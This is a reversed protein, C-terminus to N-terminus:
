NLGGDGRAWVVILVGLQDEQHCGKGGEEPRAKM